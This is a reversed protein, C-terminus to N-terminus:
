GSRSSKPMSYVCGCYQQRYLGWQRTLEMTRQFGAQKKFDRALFKDGGIDKGARNIVLASKHPSVTLTSTFADGGCDLLHRYTEQLRLRFCVACRQGGEPENELTKTATLWAEPAYPPVDLPFKLIGAVQHANELRIQYEEQPHINPNYFFGRVEHGAAILREAVGAACVACCIHLVIKM